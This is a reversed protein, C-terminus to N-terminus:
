NDGYAIFCNQQYRSMGTYPHRLFALPSDPERLANVSKEWVYLVNPWQSGQAKHATMTYCYDVNVLERLLKSLFRQQKGKIKRIAKNVPGVIKAWTKELAALSIVCSRGDEATVKTLGLNTPSLREIAEFYSGTYPEFDAVIFTDGNIFNGTNNTAILKEGVVLPGKQMFGKHFRIKTSLAIRTKNRHVIIQGENGDGYADIFRKWIRDSMTGVAKMETGLSTQDSNAALYNKLSSYSTIDGNRMATLAQIGIGASQRHIETFTFSTDEPSFFSKAKVPPLQFPDKTVFLKCQARYLQEKLREGLYEGVMSAEDLWVIGKYPLKDANWGGFQLKGDEDMFARGSIAGHISKGQLRTRQVAVKVSLWTPGLMLVERNQWRNELLWEVISTKGTGAYGDIVGVDNTEMDSLAAEIGQMQHDTPTIM